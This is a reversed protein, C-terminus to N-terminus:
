NEINGDKDFVLSRKYELLCCAMGQFDTMSGVYFKTTATHGTVPYTIIWKFNIRKVTFTEGNITFTDATGHGIDRFLDALSYNPLPSYNQM